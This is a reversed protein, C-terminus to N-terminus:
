KIYSLLKDLEAQPVISINKFSLKRATFDSGSLALLKGKEILCVAPSSSGKFLTGDRPLIPDGAQWADSDAEPVTHDPTMKKQKAVFPAIYHKSGNKYLFFSKTGATQYYTDEKPAALAGMPIADLEQDSILNIQSYKFGYTQFVTGTMPRKSSNDVIYVTQDKNSKVLTGQNPLVYGAKTYSAIEADPIIQLKKAFARQNFVLASVTRLVNNEVFYVTLDTQGRLVSGDAPTLQDGTVYAGLEVDNSNVATQPNFGRQKLVYESVPLKKNNKFLYYKGNSVALTNDALGLAGMDPYNDFETATLDVAAGVNLNRVRIVFDNLMLKGGADVMWVQSSGSARILTGNPYKFWSNMLRWFNYNGNFVHPTYRYLAATALNAITITQQPQVGNFGGLTNGLVITDGVKSIQGNYFPGRGGATNYSKMLSGVAGAFKNNEGDFNGFLQYYFGRYLDSCPSSDPCGFGLSFDLARQIQDPTATQRGTILSQEKELMVIIVQPNIGATQAADWILEAATRNRGLNPQGDNLGQKLMNNSPEKLKILFDPSTNALISNKSELFKQIGPAGGFTKSDVFVKDEILKNPDFGPVVDLQAHTTQAFIGALSFLLILIFFLSFKRM